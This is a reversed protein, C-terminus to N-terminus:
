CEGVRFARSVPHVLLTSLICWYFTKREPYRVISVPYLYTLVLRNPHRERGAQRVMGNVMGDVRQWRCRCAVPALVQLSCSCVTAACSLVGKTEASKPSGVASAVLRWFSILRIFFFLIVLDYSDRMVFDYSDRMVLEYSDRGAM